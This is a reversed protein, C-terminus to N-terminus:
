VRPAFAKAETRTALHPVPFARNRLEKRSAPEPPRKSAYQVEKERMAMAEAGGVEDREPWDGPLLDHATM